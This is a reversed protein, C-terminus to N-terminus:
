WGVAAVPIHAMVMHSLQLPPLIAINAKVKYKQRNKPNKCLSLM